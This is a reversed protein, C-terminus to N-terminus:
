GACADYREAAIGVCVEIDEALLLRAEVLARAAAGVRELYDDRGGYRAEISPRPDGRQGRAAEDKAFPLTLGIYELIQGSGGSAPHRVNFGAHTAVPVAVDPMRVGGTENGDADVASVVCAYADGAATAPFAGIGRDAGAGLELPYLRPLREPDPCTLGPLTALMSGVAERRAATGDDRRPFVSPPPAVDDRIWDLLNALASRYLPRYDVLNFDNAGRAGNPNTDVFPLVGPGHQTSAFLYRRVEPPPEVDSGDAVSSHALSADGRWYECSSDTQFIKPLCGAARQRDLLGAERGTRSDHQTADAFPFLHGFGPTPQVSPQGRRQNFEGRRGGAVHLLLGDFVRNGAEDANLGLGLFTRLYRGCQSVGQGIVHEVRGAIPSAAGRCLFAGLDRAALLGAGALPCDSPHYVIDYIRGAEFGGELWVHEPDALPRGGADRAFRWRERPIEEAEAYMHERALLRAEPDDVDRTAIPRHNGPPGTHHDTLAFHVTAANPQLRLQLPADLSLALPPVIPARLGMRPSPEPVDWQWGCWALTWGHRMLFGDGPDIADSTTLVTSGQNFSRSLLRNGRNPLEFLLARNGGGLPVLLTVDGDFRVLGDSREALDLDVIGQNAPHSPDVAYHAIADIREYAGGGEFVHGDLYPIRRIIELRKVTM